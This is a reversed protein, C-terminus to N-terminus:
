PAVVEVFSVAGGSVERIADRDDASITERGTLRRILAKDAKCSPHVFARIQGWQSVRYFKIIKGIGLAARSAQGGDVAAAFANVGGKYNGALDELVEADSMSAPSGLWARAATIVVSDAPVGVVAASEGRAVAGSVHHRLASLAPNNSNM